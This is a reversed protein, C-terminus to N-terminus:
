EEPKPAPPGKIPLTRLYAVNDRPVWVMGGETRLSVWEDDLGELKGDFWVVMPNTIQAAKRDLEVRVAAGVPPGSRAAGSQVAGAVLAVTAVGVVIVVCMAVLRRM